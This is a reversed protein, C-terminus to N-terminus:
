FIREPLSWLPVLIKRGQKKKKKKKKKWNSSLWNLFIYVSMNWLIRRPIEWPSFILIILNQQSESTWSCCVWSTKKKKKQTENKLAFCIQEDWNHLLRKHWM